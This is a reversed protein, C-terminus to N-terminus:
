REARFLVPFPGFDTELDIESADRLMASGVREVDSQPIGAEPHANRARYVGSRDGDSLVRNSTSLQRPRGPSPIKGKM